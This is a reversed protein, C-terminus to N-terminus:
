QKTKWLFAYLEQLSEFGSAIERVINEDFFTDNIPKQALFFLNKKQYWDLIKPNKDKDFLRKYNDGKKIFESQAEFKKALKMFGKEDADVVDRFAGMTKPTACFFGMGYYYGTSSFGFVFTPCDKWDKRRRKFKISTFTKMPAKNKSYRTDRFIRSITKNTVPTVDIEPDISCMFTGMENVMQKMPGFLFEEYRSRNAEFWPKNNHAELDRLFTIAGSDFGKFDGM